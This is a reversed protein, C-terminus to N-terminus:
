SKCEDLEKKLAEKEKELGKEIISEKRLKEHLLIIEKRVNLLSKLNEILMQDLAIKEATVNEIAQKLFNNEAQAATLQGQLDM